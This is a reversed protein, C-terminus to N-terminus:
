VSAASDAEAAALLGDITYTAAKVDVAMGLKRMQKLTQPVEIALACFSPARTIEADPVVPVVFRVRATANTEASALSHFKFYMGIIPEAAADDAAPSLIQFRILKRPIM